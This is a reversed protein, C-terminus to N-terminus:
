KLPCIHIPPTMTVSGRRLSTDMLFSRQYDGYELPILLRNGRTFPLSLIGYHLSYSASDMKMMLRSAYPKRHWRTHKKVISWAVEAVSYPYCSVIGYRGQFEKYIRDRLKLRGRINEELCIHIAHNVMVRFIELIEKTQPTPRYAFRVAKTPLGVHSPVMGKQVPLTNSVVKSPPPRFTNESDMLSEEM